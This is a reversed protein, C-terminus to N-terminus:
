EESVSPGPFLSGAGFVSAEHIIATLIHSDYAGRGTLRPRDEILVGQWRRDAIGGMAALLHPGKSYAKLLYARALDEV